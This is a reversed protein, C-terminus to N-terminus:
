LGAGIRHHEVIRDDTLVRDYIALEDVTGAFFGNAEPASGVVFPSDTGVLNAPSAM